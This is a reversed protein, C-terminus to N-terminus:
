QNNLLTIIIEGEKGKIEPTQAKPSQVSISHEYVTKTLYTRLEDLTIVGDKKGSDAEGSLGKLLYYTFAGHKMEPYWTAVSDGSTATLVIGIDNAVLPNNVTPLIPSVNKILLQGKSDSGSFCADLIVVIKKVGIEKLKGLNEYLLDISYGTDEANNATIDVPALYGKKDTLGPMGHGSFYIYVVEPKLKMCRAYLDSKLYSGEKGFIGIMDSLGANEKYIIGTDQVGFMKKMYEQMIKADNVAYDVKSVKTYSSNGIVVAVASKYPSKGSPINVDVDVNLKDATIAVDKQPEIKGKEYVFQKIEQKSQGIQFEISPTIVSLGLADKIALKIAGKQNGVESGISIPVVIDKAMGPQIDGFSYSSGGINKIYQNGSVIVDAKVDKAVGAGQNGIRITFEIDEGAEITKNGNGMSNGNMDDDIAWDYLILQPKYLEQTQIKMAVPATNKGFNPEDIKVDFEFYGTKLTQDATFQIEITKTEGVRVSFPKPFVVSIGEEGEINKLSVKLGMADGKGTNKVTLVLKGSDLAKLLKGSTLEVVADMTLYPPLKPKEPEMSDMGSISSYAVGKEKSGTDVCYLKNNGGGFYLKGDWVCPSSYVGNVASLTWLTKGTEADACYLKGDGSGFYVKGDWVCPSSDVRDGTQIMWLTKGSIADMCYLKKDYGGGGIYVKGDWVCPSSHNYSGTFFKGIEKGTLADACYLGNEIGLYIKGDWV